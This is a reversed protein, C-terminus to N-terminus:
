EPLCIPEAVIRVEEPVAIARAFPGVGLRRPAGGASVAHAPMRELCPRALGRGASAADWALVARSAEADAEAVDRVAQSFIGALQVAVILFLALMPAM